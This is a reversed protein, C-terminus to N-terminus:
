SMGLEMSEEMYVKLGLALNSLVCRLDNYKLPMRNNQWLCGILRVVEKLILQM